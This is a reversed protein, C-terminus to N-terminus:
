QKKHLETYADRLQTLIPLVTDIGQIDRRSLEDFMYDYIFFLNPTLKGQKFNLARELQALINQAKVINANLKEPEAKSEKLLIIARNILMILSQLKGASGLATEIFEDIKHKRPM